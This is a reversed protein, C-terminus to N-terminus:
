LLTRARCGTALLFNIIVWNRYEAFNCKSMNLKKLLKEIEKDTYTEKINKLRGLVNMNFKEIHGIKMFYNLIIRLGASFTNVSMENLTKIQQLHRVYDDTVEVTIDQLKGGYFKLFRNWCDEYYVITADALNKVRCFRIYETFVDDINLNDLRKMEIRKKVM